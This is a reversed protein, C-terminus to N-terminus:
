LRCRHRNRTLAPRGSHLHCSRLAPTTSCPTRIFRTFGFAAALGVAIGVLALSSSERLIMFLIQRARASLAMRVGIERTRRAVNYSMIGYIGICALILAAGLPSPPSSASRRALLYKKAARFM